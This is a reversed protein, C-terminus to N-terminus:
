CTLLLTLTFLGFRAGEEEELISSAEGSAGEPVGVVIHPHGPMEKPIIAIFLTSISIM